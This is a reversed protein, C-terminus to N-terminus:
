SWGSPFMSVPNLNNSLGIFQMDGVHTELASEFIGFLAGPV